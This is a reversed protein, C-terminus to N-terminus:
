REKLKKYYTKPAPLFDLGRLRFNQVTTLMGNSELAIYQVGPEAYYVVYEQIQSKM